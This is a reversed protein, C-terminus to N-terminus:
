NINLLDSQIFHINKLTGQTHFIPLLFRATEDLGLVIPVQDFDENLQDVTYFDDREGRFQFAWVNNRGEYFEGFEFSEMQENTWCVPQNVILPQTKLGLVQLVTEWNRQQDRADGSGKTIGTPTIDILTICTFLPSM